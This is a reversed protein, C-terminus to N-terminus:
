VMGEEDIPPEKRLSGLSCHCLFLPLPLVVLFSHPIILFILIEFFIRIMYTQMLHGHYSM